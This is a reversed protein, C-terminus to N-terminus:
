NEESIPNLNSILRNETSIRISLILIIRCRNNKQSPITGYNMFNTEIRRRKRKKERMPDKYVIVGQKRKGESRFRPAGYTDSRSCTQLDDRKNRYETPASKSQKGMRSDREGKIVISRCVRDSPLSIM